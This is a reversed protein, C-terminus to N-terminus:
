EVVRYRSGLSTSLASAQARSLFPGALLRYVKGSGPISAVRIVVGCADLAKYKQRLRQSELNAIEKSPLSGLQVFFLKSPATRVPPPAPPNKDRVPTAKKQPKPAVPAVLKPKTTEKPKLPLSEPKSAAPKLPKPAPLKQVPAKPVPAKQVPPRAAKPKVPLVEEEIPLGTPAYDLYPDASADEELEAPVDPFDPQPLIREGQEEEGDLKGYVLDDQYPVLPRAQPSPRMKIMKPAEIVLLSDEDRGQGTYRSQNHILFLISILIGLGITVVLIKFLSPRDIEDLFSRSPTKDAKPPKYVVKNEAAPANQRPVDNPIPDIPEPEIEVPYSLAAEDEPASDSPTDALPEVAPTTAQLGVREFLKQHPEIPDYNSEASVPPTPLSPQTAHTQAANEYKFHPDRSAFPAKAAFGEEPPSIYSLSPTASPAPEQEVPKQLVAPQERMKKKWAQDLVEEQKQRSDRIAEYSANLHPFSIPEMPADEEEEPNEEVPYLRDFFDLSPSAWPDRDDEIEGPFIGKRIQSSKKKFWLAM